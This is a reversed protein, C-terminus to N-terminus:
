NYVYICKPAFFRPNKHIEPTQTETCFFFNYVYVDFAFTLFRGNVNPTQIKLKCFYKISFQFHKYKMFINDLSNSVHPKPERKCCFNSKCAYRKTNVEWECYIVVYWNWERWNNYEIRNRTDVLGIMYWKVCSWVFVLPCKKILRECEENVECSCSLSKDKQLKSAWEIKISTLQLHGM